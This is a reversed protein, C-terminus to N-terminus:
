GLLEDIDPDSEPPVPGHIPEPLANVRRMSFPVMCNWLADAPNRHIEVAHATGTERLMSAQFQGDPLRSVVLQRNGEVALRQHIFDALNM